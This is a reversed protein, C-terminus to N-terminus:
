ARRRLWRTFVFGEDDALLHALDYGRLREPAGATLRPGDGGALNPSVTLDLEDILDAALLAGNLTPGGEAQVYRVHPDIERLRTIASGLDVRADGARLVDVAAEDIEASRPAILFGAGSTFLPTSADVRGSNTIVGIRQSAKPPPGYGEDRVTGAGVILMDAIERLTHLVAVDNDNGLAGSTGDVAVTGDLSAVMCLGIWPRGAPDPRDVEYQARVTTPGAPSPHLRRLPPTMAGIM